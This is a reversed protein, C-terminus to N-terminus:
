KVGAICPPAAPRRPRSPPIKHTNLSSGKRWSIHNCLLIHQFESPVFSTVFNYIDDRLKDIHNENFVDIFYCKESISPYTGSNEDFYLEKIRAEFYQTAREKERTSNPSIQDWHTGIIIAPSNPACCAINELWPRLSQVGEEGDEM